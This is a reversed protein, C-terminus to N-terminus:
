KDALSKVTKFRLAINVIAVVMLVKTYQDPSLITQLQTSFEPFMVVATALTGTLTNFWVTWSKAAGKLWLKLNGM